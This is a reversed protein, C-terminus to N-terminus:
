VGLTTLNVLAKSSAQMLSIVPMPYIGVLIVIAALPVLSLVERTSIDALGRYRENLPGLFIRQYSWLMYAAGLLIGSVSLITITRYANFAGLLCMLESIFSSLSPLGLAAFWAFGTFAAYVPMNAALGGFGDINRHHAREYVVGVLLFLMATITGHNFMQLIAGNMGTETLASMGLLVFGMHSISSYAVMKKLDQQAMACLAGYVINILALVALAGSFWIASEPLIPYSIRMLGYTGMKLLVGALIVSIATPAEVHADPLWTHFPFVPVKIAFALAFASFLVAQTAFAMDLQYWDLVSFSWVGTQAHYTYGSYFIALLMLVSGLMTYAFFKMSAYIRREGGWIGIIFYMPVLVADWFVYFLFMDMSAFTGTIAAQELLLCVLLPKLRQVSDGLSLVCLPFLLATLLILFLSIGDAGLQYRIGLAPMWDLSELLVFGGRVSSSDYACFAWAAVSLEVLGGLFAITKLTGKSSGPVFVLAIALVVPFFILFSLCPFGAVEM